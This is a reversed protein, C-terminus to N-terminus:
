SSEFSSISFDSEEGWGQFGPICEKQRLNWFHNLEYFKNISNYQKTIKIKILPIYLSRIKIWVHKYKKFRWKLKRCLIYFYFIFIQNKKVMLGNQVFKATRLNGTQGTIGRSKLNM